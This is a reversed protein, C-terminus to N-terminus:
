LEKSTEAQYVTGNSKTVKLILDIREIGTDFRCAGGTSCTGLERRDSIFEKEGPKIDAEGGFGQTVMGGGGDGTDPAIADYTFEWELHTIDELNTIKFQVYKLDSSPLIELGLEESSISPLIEEEFGVEEETNQSRNSIFFFAVGLVILLVAVVIGIVVKRDM